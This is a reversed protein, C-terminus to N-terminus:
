DQGDAMEQTHVFIIPRVHCKGILIAPQFGAFLQLLKLYLVLWDSFVPALICNPGVFFPLALIVGGM